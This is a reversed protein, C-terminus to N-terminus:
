CIMTLKGVVTLKLTTSIYQCGAIKTTESKTKCAEVTCPSFAFWERGDYIGRFRKPLGPNCMQM